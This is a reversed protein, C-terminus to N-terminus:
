QKEIGLKLLVRVREMLEAKEEFDLFAQALIFKGSTEDKTETLLERELCAKRSLEGFSGSKQDVFILEEGKVNKPTKRLKVGWMNQVKEMESIGVEDRDYSNNAKGSGFGLTPHDEVIKILKEKGDDDTPSEAFMEHGEADTGNPTLLKQFFCDERSLEGFCQTKIDIFILNELNPGEDEVDFERCKLMVEIDRAVVFLVVRKLDAGAVAATCV